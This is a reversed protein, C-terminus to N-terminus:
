SVARELRLDGTRIRYATGFSTGSAGPGRGPPTETGAGQSPPPSGARTVFLHRASRPMAGPRHPCTPPCCPPRFLNRAPEPPGLIAPVLRPFGWVVRRIGIGSRRPPRPPAPKALLGAPDLAHRQAWPLSSLTDVSGTRPCSVWARWASGSGALPAALCSAGVLSGQTRGSRSGAGGRTTAPATRRSTRQRRGHRVIASHAVGLEGLAPDAEAQRVQRAQGRQGLEDHELLPRPNACRRPSRAANDLLGAGSASVPRM